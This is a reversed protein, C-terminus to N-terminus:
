AETPISFLTLLTRGKETILYGDFPRSIREVMGNSLLLDLYRTVQEHNTGTQYLIRTKRVPTKTTGLLEIMLDLQDRRQRKIELQDNGMLTSSPKDGASKKSVEGTSIM